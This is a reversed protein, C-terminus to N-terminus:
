RGGAVRAAAAALAANGAAPSGDPLVLVDELGIRLDHGARLAAPLVPWFGTDLGHSLVPGAWGGEDLEAVVAEFAGLAESEGQEVIEVLVRLVRDAWPERLFRAVDGRSWLGAEVGIGMELALAVVEPADDECLNISVYDPEVRWGRMAERRAAGGPAIWAGTSVGVPIGPCAARIADLATAVADAELTEAGSADRPHVHLAGVGAAVVAAADAALEDPTLPVAPHEARTRAGNLAAQLLM